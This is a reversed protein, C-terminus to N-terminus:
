SMIKRPLRHVKRGEDPASKPSKRCTKLIAVDEPAPDIAVVEAKIEKGLYDRVVATKSLGVVHACTVVYHPGIKFGTGFESDAKIEYVSKMNDAWIKHADVFGSQFIAFVLTIM